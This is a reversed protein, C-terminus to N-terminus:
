RQDALCRTGRRRRHTTNGGLRTACWLTATLGSACRADQLPQVRPPRRSM